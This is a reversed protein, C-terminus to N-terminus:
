KVRGRLLECIPSMTLPLMLVSVAAQWVSKAVFVAVEKPSLHVKMFETQSFSTLLDPSSIITILVLMLVSVLTLECFQKGTLSAAQMSAREATEQSIASVVVAVLSLTLLGMALVTGTTVFAAGFYSPLLPPQGSAANFFALRVLFCVSCLVMPVVMLLTLFFYFKALYMKRSAVEKTAASLQTLIREKSLPVSLETATFSTFARCYTTLRMLWAGLSWVVCVLVGVFTLLMIFFSQVLVMFDVNGGSALPGMASLCGFTTFLSGVEGIVAPVICKPAFLWATYLANSLWNKNFFLSFINSRSRGAGARASPADAEPMAELSPIQQASGDLPDQL